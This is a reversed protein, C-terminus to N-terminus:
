VEQIDGKRFFLKVGPLPQKDSDTVVGKIHNQANGKLLLFLVFFVIVIRKM